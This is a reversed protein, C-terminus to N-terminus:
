FVEVKDKLKNMDLAISSSSDALEEDEWSFFVMGSPVLDLTKLTEAKNTIVKKPPAKYLYFKRTQDFLNESVFDFVAEVKERAGFKGQLILGDVFKIRIITTSYVKRNRIKQYEQLRKNGFKQNKANEGMLKLASTERLKEEYEEDEKKNDEDYARMVKQFDASGSLTNFVKIERDEVTREMLRKKFKMEEQIMQDIYNPNYISEETKGSTIRQGATSSVSEAYPNFSSKVTVGFKESNSQLQAVISDQVDKLINSPYGKILYEEGKDEFGCLLLISVISKFRLLKEQVPKKTTNLSRFKPEMPNLILNEIIKTLTKLTGLITPIDNEAEDYFDKIMETAETFYDRKGGIKM